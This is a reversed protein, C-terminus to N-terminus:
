GLAKKTEKMKSFPRVALDRAKEVMGDQEAVWELREKWLARREPCFGKKGNWLPCGEAPTCRELSERRSRYIHEGAYLVWIAAAPVNRGSDESTKDDEELASQTALLAYREYIAYADHMTLLRALFANHRTWEEKVSNLGLELGEPEYQSHYEDESNM